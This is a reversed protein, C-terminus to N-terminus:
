KKYKKCLEVVQNCTIVDFMGIHTLELPIGLEKSLWKYASSRAEHKTRGQKIARQWLKDFYHHAEKKAERLKKDALRGLAKKTGKHVGVYADCGRCLYVMGYSKGYIEKSDTFVSEKNCYPCELGKLIKDMIM